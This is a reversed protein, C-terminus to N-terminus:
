EFLQYVVKGSDHDRDVIRIDHGAKRLEFLRGGFRLGGVQSLEGNTAPGRRLREIIAQCNGALRVREQAVPLTPVTKVDMPGFMMSQQM